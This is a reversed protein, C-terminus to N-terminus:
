NRSRRFGCENTVSVSLPAHVVVTSSGSLICQEGVILKCDELDIYIHGVFHYDEAALFSLVRRGDDADRALFAGVRGCRALLRVSQAESLGPIYWRPNNGDQENQEDMDEDNSDDTLLHLELRTDKVIALAPQWPDSPGFKAKVTGKFSLTSSTLAEAEDKAVRQVAKHKVLFKFKLEEPSPLL